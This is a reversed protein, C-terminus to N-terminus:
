YRRKKGRRSIEKEELYRNKESDSGHVMLWEEYEKSRLPCERWIKCDCWQGLIHYGRQCSVINEPDIGPIIPNGSSDPQCGRMNGDIMFLQYNVVTDLFNKEPDKIGTLVSELYAKKEKKELTRVYELILSKKTSLVTKHTAINLARREENYRKDLTESFKEETIRELWDKQFFDHKENLDVLYGVIVTQSMNLKKALANIKDRTDTEVRVTVM